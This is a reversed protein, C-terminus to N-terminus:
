VQFQFKKMEGKKLELEIRIKLKKEILLRESKFNLPVKDFFNGQGIRLRDM